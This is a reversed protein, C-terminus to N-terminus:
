PPILDTMTSPFVSILNTPSCMGLLSTLLSGTIASLMKQGASPDGLASGGDDQSTIVTAGAFADQHPIRDHNQGELGKNIVNMIGARLIASPSALSPLNNRLPTCPGSPGAVGQSYNLRVFPNNPAIPTEPDQSPDFPLSPHTPPSDPVCRCNHFWLDSPPSPLHIYSHTTPICIHLHLPLPQLDLLRFAPPRRPQVSRTM